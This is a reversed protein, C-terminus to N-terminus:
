RRITSTPLHTKKDETPLESTDEPLVGAKCGQTRMRRWMILLTIKKTPLGGIEIGPEELASVQTLMQSVQVFATVVM